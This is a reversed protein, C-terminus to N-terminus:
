PIISQHLSQSPLYQHDDNQTRLRWTSTFLHSFSHLVFFQSYLIYLLVLSVCITLVLFLFLVSRLCFLRITRPACPYLLFQCPTTSVGACLCVEWNKEETREVSQVGRCM